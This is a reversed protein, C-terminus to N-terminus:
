GNDHINVLGLKISRLFVEGQEDYGSLFVAANYDGVVVRDPSPPGNQGGQPPPSQQLHRSQLSGPPSKLRM